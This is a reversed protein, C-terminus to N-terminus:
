PRDYNNGTSRPWHGAVVKRQGGDVEEKRMRQLGDGMRRGPLGPAFCIVCESRTHLTDLTFFYTTESPLRTEM